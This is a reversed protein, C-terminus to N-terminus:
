SIFSYGWKGYHEGTQYRSVLFDIGIRPLYSSGHQSKLAKRAAQYAASKTNYATM